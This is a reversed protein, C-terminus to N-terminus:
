GEGPVFVLESRPGTLVLRGNTTEVTAADDLAAVFAAESDMVEPPLCAMETVALDGVAFSGGAVDIRGQYQNCAAVGSIEDGDITLTIPHTSVVPIAAGDLTGSQLQWSGEPSAGLGDGCATVVFLILAFFVINTRMAM